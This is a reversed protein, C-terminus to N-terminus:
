GYARGLTRINDGTNVDWLRLTDRVSGFWEDVTHGVALTSGDPSFTVSEVGDFYGLGNARAGLLRKSELTETDRLTVWGWSGLGPAADFHGVALTQGDPSFTLSTPLYVGEARHSKSNERKLTGFISKVTRFM